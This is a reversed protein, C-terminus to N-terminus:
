VKLTALTGAMSIRESLPISATELSFCSRVFSSLSSFYNRQLLEDAFLKTYIYDRICFRKNQMRSQRKGARQICFCSNQM